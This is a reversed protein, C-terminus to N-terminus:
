YRESNDELEHLDYLSELNDVPDKYSPADQNGSM